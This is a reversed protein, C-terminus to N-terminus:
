VSFFDPVLVQTYNGEIVNIFLNVELLVLYMYCKTWEFLLKGLSIIFWFQQRNTQKNTQKKDTKSKLM